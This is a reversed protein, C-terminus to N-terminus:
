VHRASFFGAGVVSAWQELAIQTMQVPPPTPVVWHEIAIQTMQAETTLPTVSAMADKETM